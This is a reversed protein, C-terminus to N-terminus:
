RKNEAEKTEAPKQLGTSYRNAIDAINKVILDTTLHSGETDLDDFWNKLVIETVPSVDEPAIHYDNKLLQEVETTLNQKEIDSLM